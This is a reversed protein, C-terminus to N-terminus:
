VFGKLVGAAEKMANGRHSINNKIEPGLQSFTKEYEPVLFLPDYGFGLNGRPERTIIGRCSGQVVVTEKHPRSIAIVCTFQAGRQEWPVDKLLGLLKQNNEEDSAGEGAFRASYVGPKGELYDVELGSDDALVTHATYDRLAEAKIMANEQFTTGTEIIEPCQPFDVLSLVEFPLGQLIEKFEKIKGKNKTAIVLPIM